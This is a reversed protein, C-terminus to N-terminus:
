RSIMEGCRRSGSPEHTISPLNALAHHVLGPISARVPWQRIVVPISDQEHGFVLARKSVNGARDTAAQASNLRLNEPQPTATNQRRRTAAPHTDSIVESLCPRSRCVDGGPADPRADLRELRGNGQRAEASTGDVSAASRHAAPHGASAQESLTMAGAPLPHPWMRPPHFGRLTNLKPQCVRPTLWCTLIGEHKRTFKGPAEHTPPEKGLYLAHSGIVM